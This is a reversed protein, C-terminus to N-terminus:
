RASKDALRSIIRWATNMFSRYCGWSNCIGVCSTFSRKKNLYIAVFKSGKTCDCPAINDLEEECTPCSITVLQHENFGDGGHKTRDGDVPSIYVDQKKNVDSILVKISPYGSIKFENSMLDHGNHCYARTVVLRGDETMITSTNEEEFTM